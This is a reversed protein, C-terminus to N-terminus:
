RRSYITKLQGQAWGVADEAPMGQVAKAYMDVIIYKSHAETANGSPPGRYGFIRANRAARRLLQLPRDFGSWMPDQEWQTTAAVSYGGSAELWRRYNEPRHLWRLFDGALKRNSSYKMVGHGSSFYLPYQGAAGSLPYFAHGIDLYLPGGREDLVRDPQRKASIYISTGNLTACIEGAHFARNNRTEDWSLGSEECGEKWLAQMYKVSAVTETSALMVREGSSDTEVGGFAWLLPYVWTDSDGFTHSLTQGYPRGKKKLAATAERLEDWTRPFESYGVEEFWSKRYAIAVGVVSHPVGLWAGGVRLSFKFVDYYGGQADAIGAAVDSVDALAKRYLHPWNYYLHFVDPGSGSRIAAVFRPLVDTPHVTELMIRAGLAKEAEPIQRARLEIDAEPIFDTWRVVHLVTGQSFAPAWRAALIGALGGLTAAAGAAKLFSRRRRRRKTSGGAAM